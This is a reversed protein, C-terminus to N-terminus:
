DQFGRYKKMILNAYAEVTANASALAEGQGEFNFHKALNLMLRYRANLGLNRNGYKVQTWMSSTVGAMSALTAPKLGTGEELNMWDIEADAFITNFDNM